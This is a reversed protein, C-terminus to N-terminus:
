QYRKEADARIAHIQSLAGQAIQMMEGGDRCTHEENGYVPDNRIRCRLEIVFGDIRGTMSGRRQTYIANILPRVMLQNFDNTVINCNGNSHWVGERHMTIAVNVLDYISIATAVSGHDGYYKPSYLFHWAEYRDSHEIYQVDLESVCAGRGNPFQAPNEPASFVVRGDDADVWVQIANSVAAWSLLVFLFLRM